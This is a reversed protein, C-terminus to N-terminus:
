KTEYSTYTCRSTTIQQGMSMEQVCFVSLLLLFSRPWESFFLRRVLMRRLPVVNHKVTPPSFLCCAVILVGPYTARQKMQCFQRVYQEVRAKESRPWQGEGGDGWARDQLRQVRRPPHHRRGTGNESLWVHDCWVACPSPSIADFFLARFM